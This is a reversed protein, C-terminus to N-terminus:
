GSFVETLNVRLDPVAAAQITEEGLYVEPRAYRGDGGLRYVMVTAREPNVVWYERM